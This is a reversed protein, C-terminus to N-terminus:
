RLSQVLDQARREWDVREGAVGPLERGIATAAEHGACDRLLASIAAADM